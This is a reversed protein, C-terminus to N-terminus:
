SANADPADIRVPRFKGYPIFLMAGCECEGGKGLMRQPEPTNQKPLEGWGKQWNKWHHKHFIM